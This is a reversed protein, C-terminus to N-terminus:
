RVLDVAVHLLRTPTHAGFLEGSFAAFTAEPSERSIDWSVDNLTRDRPQIWTSDEQYVGSANM